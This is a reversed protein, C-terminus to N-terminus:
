QNRGLHSKLFTARNQIEAQTTFRSRGTAPSRGTSSAPFATAQDAPDAFSMPDNPRAPYPTAIRNGYRDHTGNLIGDGIERLSYSRATTIVGTSQTTYGIGQNRGLRGVGPVNGLMPIGSSNYGQGMRGIGGQYLSGGDPVFFSSNVRFQSYEPLFVVVQADASAQCLQWSCVVLFLRTLWRVSGCNLTTKM